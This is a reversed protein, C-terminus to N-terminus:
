CFFMSLILSNRDHQCYKGMIKKACGVEGVYDSKLIEVLSEWTIPVDSINRSLWYDVAASLIDGEQKFQVMKGRPIGLQIGIKYAKHEVEGLENCVTRLTLSDSLSLLLYVMLLGNHIVLCICCM